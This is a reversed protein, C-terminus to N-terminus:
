GFHARFTEPSELFLDWPVQYASLIVYCNCHLHDECNHVRRCGYRSFLSSYEHSFPVRFRVEAIGTSHEVLQDILGGDTPKDYVWM